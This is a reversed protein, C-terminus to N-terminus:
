SGKMNLTTGDLDLVILEITKKDVKLNANNVM